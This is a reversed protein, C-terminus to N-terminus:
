TWWRGRCPNQEATTVKQLGVVTAQDGASDVRTGEELEHSADDRQAGGGTEGIGLVAAPDIEIAREGPHVGGPGAGPIEAPEDTAVL